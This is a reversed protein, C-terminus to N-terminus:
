QCDVHNAQMWLMCRIGDLAHVMDFEHMLHIPAMMGDGTM